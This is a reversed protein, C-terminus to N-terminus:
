QEYTALLSELGAAIRRVQESEVVTKASIRRTQHRKEAEHLREELEFILQSIGHQEAVRLGARAVISAREFDGFRLHGTCEALHLSCLVFLQFRVTHGLSCYRHFREEDGLEVAFEIANVCVGGLHIRPLERTLLLEQCRLAARTHGLQALGYSLAVLAGIALDDSPAIRFARYVVTCARVTRGSRGLACGLVLLSHSEAGPSGIARATQLSGLALTAARPLDGANMILEAEFQQAIVFFEAAHAREAARTLEDILRDARPREHARCAIKVAAALWRLQDHELTNEPTLSLALEIVDLAIAAHTDEAVIADAYAGVAFGLGAHNGSHVSDLIAALRERRIPEPVNAVAIQAARIAAGDTAGWAAGAAVCLSLYAAYAELRNPAKSDAIIRLFATLPQPQLSM